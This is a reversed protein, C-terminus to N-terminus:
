KAAFISGIEPALDRGGGNEPTLKFNATRLQLDCGVAARAVVVATEAVVAAAAAAASAIAVM